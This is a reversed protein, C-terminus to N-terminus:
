PQLPTLHFDADQVISDWGYRGKKQGAALVDVHLYIVGQKWGPFPSPPNMESIIFLKWNRVNPARGPPFTLEDDENLGAM